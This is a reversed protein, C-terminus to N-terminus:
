RDLNFCNYTFPEFKPTGYGKKKPYPLIVRRVFTTYFKEKFSENVFIKFVGM